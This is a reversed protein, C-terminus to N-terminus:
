GIIFALIPDIPICIVATCMLAISVWLDIIKFQKMFQTNQLKLFYHFYMELNFGSIM